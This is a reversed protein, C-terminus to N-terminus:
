NPDRVLRAFYYDYKYNMSNQGYNFRVSWAYENGGIYPTASWFIGAPTSPFVSLNIAPGYCANEIISSLEKINPLRWNVSGAFGGSSNTTNALELAERWNYQIVTGDGVLCSNSSAEWRQGEACKKWILKTKLDTVTGDQNDTFQSSPTTETILGIKCPQYNALAYIPTLILTLVWALKNM